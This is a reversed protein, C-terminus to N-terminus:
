EDEVEEIKFNDIIKNLRKIENIIDIFKTDMSLNETLISDKFPCDNCSMNWCNSNENIAIEKQM